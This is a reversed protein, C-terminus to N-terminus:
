NAFIRIANIDHPGYVPILGTTNPESDAYQVDGTLSLLLSYCDNSMFPYKRINKKTLRTRQM